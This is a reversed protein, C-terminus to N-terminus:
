YNRNFTNELCWGMEGLENLCDQIDKNNCITPIVGKAGVIELEWSQTYTQETADHDEMGMHYEEDAELNKMYEVEPKTDGLYCGHYIEFINRLLIYEVPKFKHIFSSGMELNWNGKRMIEIDVIDRLIWRWNKTRCCPCRIDPATWPLVTGDYTEECGNYDNLKEYCDACYGGESCTGCKYHLPKTGYDHHFKETEYCCPCPTETTVYSTM